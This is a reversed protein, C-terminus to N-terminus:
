WDILALPVCVDVWPRAMVERMRVAMYRPCHCGHVATEGMSHSMLMDYCDTIILSRPFVRASTLGKIALNYPPPPGWTPSTVQTPPTVRRDM